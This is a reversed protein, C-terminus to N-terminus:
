YKIILWGSESGKVRKALLSIFHEDKIWLDRTLKDKNALKEFKRIFSTL